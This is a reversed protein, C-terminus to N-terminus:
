IRLGKGNIGDHILLELDACRYEELYIEVLLPPRIWLPIERESSEGSYGPRARVQAPPRNAEGAAALTGNGPMKGIQPIRIHTGAAVIKLDNALSDPFIAQTELASRLSTRRAQLIRAIPFQRYVILVTIDIALFEAILIREAEALLQL